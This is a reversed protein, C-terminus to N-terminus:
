YQLIEIRVNGKQAQIRATGGIPFTFMPHTHGFDANAIVPLGRLERKTAIIQELFKRTMKTAKQFRGIVLGRVGKFEPLHILSQLNRDFAREHSEYDDEIFLISDNLSPMYETGQLLNLTCLNGGIITGDAKGEQLIWHGDNKEFPLDPADPTYRADAWKGSPRITLPDDGFLCQEFCDFTYQLQKGFGFQYFSPGSYTVLGTKAYIANGLATIDSFGLLIKPNQKILDYDLHKLLQNSSFGGRLCHIMYISPDRFADHLDEVRSEISSSGFADTERVHKGYTVALGWQAMKKETQRLFEETLWPM